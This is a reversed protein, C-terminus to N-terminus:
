IHILSLANSLSMSAHAYAMLSWNRKELENKSHLLAAESLKRLSIDRINCQIVREGNVGYANSVFEVNITKGQKTKLPLDEYRIYGTSQLTDFAKIAANKDVMAGIEWLVKGILEEKTYGLLNLLFPNADEIKGTSFALILIGDQAAEFLRRYRLESAHIEPM